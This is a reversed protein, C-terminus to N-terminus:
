NLTGGRSFDYWTNTCLFLKKSLLIHSMQCSLAGLRTLILTVCFVFVNSWTQSESISVSVKSFDVFYRHWIQLFQIRWFDNRSLWQNDIVELSIIERKFCICLNSVTRLDPMTSSTQLIALNQLNLPLAFGLTWLIKANFMFTNASKCSSLTSILCPNKFTILLFFLILLLKLTDWTQYSHHVAQRRKSLLLPTLWRELM